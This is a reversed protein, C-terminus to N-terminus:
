VLEESFKLRIQKLAKNLLRSIHVQQVGVIETLERQRLGELVVKEFILKERPRLEEVTRMVENLLVSDFVDDNKYLLDYYTINEKDHQNKIPADFYLKTSDVAFHRKNDRLHRKIMNGICRDAFTAFTYGKEPNFSRAAQTLGLLALSKLEDIDMKPLKKYWKNAFFYALKVNDEALQQQEITLM